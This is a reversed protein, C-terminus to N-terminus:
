KFFRIIPVHISALIENNIKGNTSKIQQQVSFYSGFINGVYFFTFLTGFTIVQPSKINKTRYYSEVVMLGLATTTAFSAIAAGKKGAYFKGLGPVVSSLLAAKIPSKKYDKKARLSLEKLRMQENTLRFDDYRFTNCLSDFKEFKRLLLYNGAKMTNLVPRYVLATDACFDDFKSLALSEKKAYLLNLIEFSKAKSFLNSSASVKSFVVAATDPRKMLYYNYGKLFNLTDSNKLENPQNLLFLAEKNKENQTLFNIFVYNQNIQAIVITANFFAFQIVSFYVLLKM